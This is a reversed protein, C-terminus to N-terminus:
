SKKSTKAYFSSFRQQVKKSNCKPCKVKTKGYESFSMTLTFKKKCGACQFDYTPM